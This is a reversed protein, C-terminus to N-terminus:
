ASSGDARHAYTPLHTAKQRQSVALACLVAQGVAPQAPRPWSQCIVKGVSHCHSFAARPWSPRRYGQPLVILLLAAGVDVLCIFFGPRVVQLLDAGHAHIGVLFWVVRGVADCVQAAVHPFPAQVFNLHTASGPLLHRWDRRAPHSTAGCGTGRRSRDLLWMGRVKAVVVAAHPHNRTPAAM